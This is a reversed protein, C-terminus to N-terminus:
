LIGVGWFVPYCRRAHRAIVDIDQGFNVEERPHSGFREFRNGRDRGFFRVREPREDKGV